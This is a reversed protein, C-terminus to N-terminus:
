VHHEQVTTRWLAGLQDRGLPYGLALHRLDRESGVPRLMLLGRRELAVIGHQGRQRDVDYNEGAGADLGIEGVLRLLDGDRDPFEALAARSRRGPGV